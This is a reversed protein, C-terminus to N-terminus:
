ANANKWPMRMEWNKIGNIWLLIEMGVTLLEVPQKEMMFSFGLGGAISPLISYVSSTFIDM